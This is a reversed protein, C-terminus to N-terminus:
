DESKIYHSAEKGSLKAEEIMRRIAEANARRSGGPIADPLEAIEIAPADTKPASKTASGAFVSICIYAFASIILAFIAFKRIKAHCGNESPSAPGNFGERCLDCNLCDM